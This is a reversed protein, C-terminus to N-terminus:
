NLLPGTIETARSRIYNDLNWATQADKVPLFDIASKEAKIGYLKQYVKILIKKMLVHSTVFASTKWGYNLGFYREPAGIILSSESLGPINEVIHMWMCPNLLIDGPHVDIEYRNVKKMWDANSYTIQPEGNILFGLLSAADDTLHLDMFPLEAPAILTWKKSGTIQKFLNIGFAAHLPSGGSYFGIFIEYLPELGVWNSIPTKVLEMLEPNKYLIYHNTRSYISRNQKLNYDLFENFTCEKYYDNDMDVCNISDNGYKQAWFEVDSLKKVGEPNMANRVVL